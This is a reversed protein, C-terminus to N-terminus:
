GTLDDDKRGRRPAPGARGRRANAAAASHAIASSGAHLTSGSAAGSSTYTSGTDVPAGPAEAFTDGPLEMALGAAVDVGAPPAGDAEAAARASGHDSRTTRGAAPTCRAPWRM